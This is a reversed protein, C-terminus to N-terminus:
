IEISIEKMIEKIQVERDKRLNGKKDFVLTALAKKAHKVLYPEYFEHERAHITFSVPKGDNNVDYKFTFDILLPNYVGIKKPM